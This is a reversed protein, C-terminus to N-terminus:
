KAAHTADEKTCGELLGGRYQCVETPRGDQYTTVAGDLRNDVYTETATLAGARSWTEVVGTLRGRHSRGRQYLKGESGYARWEGDLVGDVYTGEFKLRGNWYLERVLGQRVGGAYSEVLWLSGDDAWWRWTGAPRGHKRQGQVHLAGTRHWRLVAGDAGPTPPPTAACGAALLCLLVLRM